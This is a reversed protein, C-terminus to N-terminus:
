QITGFALEVGHHAALQRIRATFYAGRSKRIRGAAAQHRTESLAEYILEEPVQNAILRYLGLSERDRLTDIMDEVLIDVRIRDEEPGLPKGFGNVTNQTKTVSDEYASIQQRDQVALRQRDPTAIDQRDPTVAATSREPLRLIYYVNPKNLGRRKWSILEARRLEDLHYRVMRDKLGLDAAITQQAPHCFGDQWAYKLLMAYTMRAGLSLEHNQLIRNPISTFGGEFQRLAPDTIVVTREDRSRDPSLYADM